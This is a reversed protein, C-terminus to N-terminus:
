HGTVHSIIPVSEEGRQPNPIVIDML